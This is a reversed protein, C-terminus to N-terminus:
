EEERQPLFGGAALRFGFPSLGLQPEQGVPSSRAAVHNLAVPLTEAQLFHFSANGCLALELCSWFAARSCVALSLQGCAEPASGKTRRCGIWKLRAACHTRLRWRRKPWCPKPAHARGPPLRFPPSAVLRAVLRPSSPSPALSRKSSCSRRCAYRVRLLLHTILLCTEASRVLVCGDLCANNGRGSRQCIVLASGLEASIRKGFERSASAALIVYRSRGQGLWRMGVVM